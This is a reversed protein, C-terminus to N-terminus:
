VFWILFSFIIFVLVLHQQLFDQTSHLHAQEQALVQWHM